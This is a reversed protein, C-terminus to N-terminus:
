GKSYRNSFQSCIYHLNPETIIPIYIYRIDFPIVAAYKIKETDYEDIQYNKYNEIVSYLFIRIQKM